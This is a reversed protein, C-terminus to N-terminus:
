GAKFYNAELYEHVDDESLRVQREIRYSPIEGAKVLRYVTMPSVRMMAAVEKVTLLREPIGQTM